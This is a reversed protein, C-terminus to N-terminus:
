TTCLNRPDGTDRMGRRLKTLEAHVSYPTVQRDVWDRLAAEYAWRKGGRAKLLPVPDHDRLALRGVESESMGLVHAIDRRGHVRALATGDALVGGNFTRAKWEDLAGPKAWPQGRVAMVPLPDVRRRAYALVTDPCSVVALRRAIAKWGILPPASPATLVAPWVLGVV